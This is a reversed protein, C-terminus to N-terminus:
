SIILSVYTNSSLDVSSTRAILVKITEYVGNREEECFEAACFHLSFQSSNKTGYGHTFSWRCSSM